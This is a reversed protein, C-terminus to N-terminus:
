PRRNSPLPRHQWKSADRTVSEDTHFQTKSGCSILVTDRANRSDRWRRRNGATFNGNIAIGKDRAGTGAGQHAKAVRLGRESQGAIAAQDRAYWFVYSSSCNLDNSRLVFALGKRHSESILNRVVQM